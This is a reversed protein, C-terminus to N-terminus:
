PRPKKTFPTYSPGHLARARALMRDYFAACQQRIEPFTALLNDQTAQDLATFANNGNRDVALPDVRPDALLIAATTFDMKYCSQILPTTEFLASQDRRGKNILGFAEAVSGRLEEHSEGTIDRLSDKAFTILRAMEPDRASELRPDAGRALVHRLARRGDDVADPLIAAFAVLTQGNKNRADLPLHHHDHLYDFLALADDIIKRDKAQAQAHFAPSAEAPIARAYSPLPLATFLLDSPPRDTKTWLPLGYEEVLLRLGELNGAAVATEVASRYPAAPYDKHGRAPDAGRALLLRVADNRHHRLAAGLGSHLYTEPAPPNLWEAAHEDPTQAAWKDRIQDVIEKVAAPDDMNVTVPPNDIQDSDEGADLLRNIAALDGLACALVFPNARNM